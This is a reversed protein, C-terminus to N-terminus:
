GRARVAAAAARRGPKLDTQPVRGVCRGLGCGLRAGSEECRSEAVNTHAQTHSLTRHSPLALNLPTFILSPGLISKVKM